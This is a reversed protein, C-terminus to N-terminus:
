IVPAQLRGLSNYFTHIGSPLLAQASLSYYHASHAERRSRPQRLPNTSDSEPCPRPRLNSPTAPLLEMAMLHM